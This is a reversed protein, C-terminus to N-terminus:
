GLQPCAKIFQEMEVHPKATFIRSRIMVSSSVAQQAGDLTAHRLDQYSKVAASEYDKSRQTLAATQDATRSPDKIGAKAKYAAACGALTTWGGPDQVDQAGATGAALALSLALSPALALLPTTKLM